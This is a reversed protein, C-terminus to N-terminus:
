YMEFDTGRSLCEGVYLVYSFRRQPITSSFGEVVQTRARQWVATNQNGRHIRQLFKRRCNLGSGTQEAIFASVSKPRKESKYFKMMKNDILRYLPNIDYVLLTARVCLNEM